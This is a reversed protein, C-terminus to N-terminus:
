KNELFKMKQAVLTLEEILQLLQKKTLDVQFCYDCNETFTILSCDKNLDINFIRGYNLETLISKM